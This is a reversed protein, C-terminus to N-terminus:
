VLLYWTPELEIMAIVDLNSSFLSGVRSVKLLHCLRASPTFDAFRVVAYLRPHLAASGWSRQEFIILARPAASLPSM